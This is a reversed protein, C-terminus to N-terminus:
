GTYQLMLVRSIRLLIIIIYMNEIASNGRQTLEVRKNVYMCLIYVM